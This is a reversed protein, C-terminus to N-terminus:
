VRLEWIITFGNCNLYTGAIRIQMDDVRNETAVLHQLTAAHFFIGRQNITLKGILFLIAITQEQGESPHLVAYAVHMLLGNCTRHRVLPQLRRPLRETVTQCRSLLFFPFQLYRLRVTCGSIGREHSHEVILAEVLNIRVM